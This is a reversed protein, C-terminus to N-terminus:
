PNGPGFLAVPDVGVGPTCGGAGVVQFIDGRYLVAVQFNGLTLCVIEGTSVGLLLVQSPTNPTNGPHFYSTWDTGRAAAVAAPTSIAFNSQRARVLTVSASALIARVKGVVLHVYSSERERTRPDFKLRTLVMRSNESLLLTSGDPLKLEA